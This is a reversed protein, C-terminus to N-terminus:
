AFLNRIIQRIAKFSYKYSIYYKMRVKHNEQKRVTRHHKSSSVGDTYFIAIILNLHKYSPKLSHFIRANFEYDGAIQYSEDYSGVQDFLKRKYFTAQHPLMKKLFYGNSLASPYNKIHECSQDRMLLNGYVIDSDLQPVVVSLVNESYFEDGGNLFLVYDGSALEIGKNMAHYIGRDPESILVDIQSSFDKLIKVTGDTSKGDVVIWEKNSFNQNQISLCTNEIKFCENFCVTIISVKNTKM